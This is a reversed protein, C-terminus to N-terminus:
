IRLSEWRCKWSEASYKWKFHFQVWKQIFWRMSRQQSHSSYDQMRGKKEHKTRILDQLRAWAWNSLWKQSKRGWPSYGTLRRQGHFKGPLFLPTLQWKRRWPIKRGWPDFRPQRCQLRIRIGYIKWTNHSIWEYTCTHCSTTNSGAERGVQNGGHTLTVGYNSKQELSYLYTPQDVFWSRCGKM